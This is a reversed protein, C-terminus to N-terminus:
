EDIHASKGEFIVVIISAVRSDETIRNFKPILIGNSDVRPENQAPICANIEAHTEIKNPLFDFM